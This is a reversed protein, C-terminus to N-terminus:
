SGERVVPQQEDAYKHALWSSLTGPVFGVLGYLVYQLVGSDAKLWLSLSGFPVDAGSALTTVGAENFYGSVGGANVAEVIARAGIGAADLARKAAATALTATSEGPGAIRRERIGTRQVIWEDNTDVMKSLDANTLRKEPVYSGTGAIIAGYDPM